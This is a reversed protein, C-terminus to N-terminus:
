MRGGEVFRLEVKEDGKSRSRLKPVRVKIGKKM